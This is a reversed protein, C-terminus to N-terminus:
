VGLKAVGGGWFFLLLFFFLDPYSASNVLSNTVCDLISNTSILTSRSRAFCCGVTDYAM